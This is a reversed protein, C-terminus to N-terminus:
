GILTVCSRFFITVCRFFCVLTVLSSPKLGFPSRAIQGFVNKRRKLWCCQLYSMTLIHRQNMPGHRCGVPRIIAAMPWQDRTPGDRGGIGRVWLSVGERVSGLWGGLDLPLSLMCNPWPRSLPECREREREREREVLNWSRSRSCVSINSSM